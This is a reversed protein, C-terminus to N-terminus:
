TMRKLTDDKDIFHHKLAGAIHLVVLAMIAYSVYEHVWGMTDVQQASFQSFAPLKIKEFIVLTEGDATAMLYGTIVMISILLYFLRKVWRSAIREIKKHPQPFNPRNGYFLKFLVWAWLLLLITGALFHSEPLTQYWQSYYDLDVMYWGSFFLGITLIATVWHLIRTTLPHKTTM